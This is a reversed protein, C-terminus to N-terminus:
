VMTKKTQQRCKSSPAAECKLLPHREPDRKMFHNIQACHCAEVETKNLDVDNLQCLPAFQEAALHTLSNKSINLHILDPLIGFDPIQDIKTAAINLRELPAKVPKQILSFGVNMLLNEAIYFNRLRPLNLVEPMVFRLSNKSLDLAELEALQAFTGPEIEVIM